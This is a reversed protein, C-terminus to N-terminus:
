DRASACKDGFSALTLCRRELLDMCREYAREAKILCEDSIRLKSTPAERVITGARIKPGGDGGWLGTATHKQYDERLPIDLNLWRELASFTSETQNLLQNHTLFFTHNKETIGEALIELHSLREVYYTLAAEDTTADYQGAVSNNLARLSQLTEEPDRILFLSFVQPSELITPKQMLHNHLVKDLVYRENLRWRRFFRTVHATLDDLDEAREYSRFTEGYGIIEPNTNLLHAMLTSGSRMHGLVFLYNIPPRGAKLMTSFGSIFPQKIARPVSMLVRSEIACLNIENSMKNALNFRKLIHSPLIINSQGFDGNATTLSAPERDCVQSDSKGALLDKYADYTQQATHEWTYQRLIRERLETRFPAKYAAIIAQRITDIQSPDCWWVQDGFYERAYGRNGAVVNCGSLTAELSVLGTTEFFSPM